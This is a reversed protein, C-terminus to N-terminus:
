SAVRTQDCALAAILLDMQSQGIAPYNAVKTLDTKAVTPPSCAGTTALLQKEIARVSDQHQQVRVKDDAGVKTALTGLSNVAFDLVSQRRKTLIAVQAASLNTGAF